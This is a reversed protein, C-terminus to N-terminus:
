EVGNPSEQAAEERKRKNMIIKRIVQLTVLLVIVPYLYAIKQVFLGRYYRFNYARRLSSNTNNAFVVKQNKDVRVFAYGNSFSKVEDFQPEFLYNGECDVFGWKGDLEVASYGDERFYYFEDYKCPIVLNGKTDILGSKHDNEVIAYGNVFNYAKDYDFPIVVNGYPDVYGFKYSADDRVCLLGNYCSGTKIGYSPELTYNFDRDIVGYKEGDESVVAYGESFPFADAFKPELVYNGEHDIYGWLGNEKVCAIDESFPYADEFRAEIVWHAEESAFGITGEPRKKLPILGESFDSKDYVSANELDSYDIKNLDYDSFENIVCGASSYTELCSLFAKEGYKFKCDWLDISAPGKKILNGKADYLGRYLTGGYAYKDNVRVVLVDAPTLGNELFNDCHSFAIKSTVEGDTNIVLYGPDNTYYRSIYAKESNAWLLVYLAILYVALKGWFALGSLIKKGKKM